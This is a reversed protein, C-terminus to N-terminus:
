RNWETFSFEAEIANEIADPLASFFDYGLMDELDDVSMAYEQMNGPALDNPYVFAIARPHDVNVALFVKFFASPVRVKSYGIRETDTEEYIPGCIIWIAGDRNAWQREKNELTAWAKENIAAKQPCMNAMSFCDEMAQKSWRQDAAPCMHGRQYGTNAFDYDKTPCGEIEKDQWFNDTRDYPGSTEYDCLEWAVYNPTKNDKNFSVTFGTYEKIQSPLHDPLIVEYLSSAPTVSPKNGSPDDGPEDISPDDNGPDEPTPDTNGPDEPAPDEEEPDKVTSDNNNDKDTQSSGTFKPDDADIKSCSSICGSYMLVCFAFIASVAIKPLNSM